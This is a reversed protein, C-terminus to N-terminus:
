VSAPLATISTWGYREQNEPTYTPAQLMRAVLSIKRVTTLSEESVTQFRGGASRLM